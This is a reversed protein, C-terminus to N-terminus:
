KLIFDRSPLTEEVTRSKICNSPLNTNHSACRTVPILLTLLIALKWDDLKIAFWNLYPKVNKFRNIEQLNKASLIGLIDSKIELKHNLLLNNVM